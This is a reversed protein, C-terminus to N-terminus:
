SVFRRLPRQCLCNFRRARILRPSPRELSHTRPRIWDSAAWQALPAAMGMQGRGVMRASVEAEPSLQARFTFQEGRVPVAVMGGNDPSANGGNSLISGALTIIGSSVIRIAGGGAGGGAGPNNVSVAGGAGGSGGRLPVLLTNGYALGGCASSLGHSAGCGRFNSRAGGGPGFGATSLRRIRREAAAFTHTTM